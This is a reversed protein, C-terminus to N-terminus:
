IQPHRRRNSHLSVSAAVFFLRLPTPYTPAQEEKACLIAKDRGRRRASAGFQGEELLDSAADGASARPGRVRQPAPFGALFKGRLPAPM